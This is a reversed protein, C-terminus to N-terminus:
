DPNIRRGGRDFLPPVQAAPEVNVTAEPTRADGILRERLADAVGEPPRWKGTVPDISINESM